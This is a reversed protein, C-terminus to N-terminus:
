RRLLLGKRKEGRALIEYRRKVNSAFTRNLLRALESWKEGDTQVFELIIKDEASTYETLINGCKLQRARQIIETALRPSNLDQGLYYGLINLKGGTSKEKNTNNFVANAVEEESIKTGM